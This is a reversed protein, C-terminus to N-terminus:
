KGTSAPIQQIIPTSAKAIEVRAQREDDIQKQLAAIQHTLFHNREELSTKAAELTSKKFMTTCDRPSSGLEEPDCGTTKGCLSLSCHFIFDCDLIKVM